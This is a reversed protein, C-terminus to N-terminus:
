RVKNSEVLHDSLEIAQHVVGHGLVIGVLEHGLVVGVLERALNVFYRAFDVCPCRNIYMRRPRDLKPIVAVDSWEFGM